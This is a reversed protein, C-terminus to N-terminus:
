RLLQQSGARVAQVETGPGAMSFHDRIIVELSVVGARVPERLIVRLLFPRCEQHGNSEIQPVSM